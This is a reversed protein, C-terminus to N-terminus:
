AFDLFLLKNYSATTAGDPVDYLLAGPAVTMLRGEALAEANESDLTTVMEMPQSPMARGIEFLRNTIDTYGTEGTPVEIYGDSNSADANLLWYIVPDDGPAPATLGSDIQVLPGNLNTYEETPINLDLKLILYIYPPITDKIVPILSLFYSMSELSNFKFGLYAINLKMFNDMIFDLPTFIASDGPSSLNFYLKLKNKKAVSSNIFQNFKVVDEDHGIVPFVVNGLNDLYITELKNSFSLQGLYSGLFLYRSFALKDPILDTKKWWGEVNYSNDYFDIDNSILEGAYLTSGIQTNKLVANLPLKYAEKDTILFKNISDSFIDEIIEERNRVVPIGLISACLTQINNITPGSVFLKIIAKLVEKYVENNKIKLNFIYGFNKYLNSQDLECNYIWLIASQEQQINGSSDVFTIPEGSEGVVDYKEINPSDFVDRNIILTGNDIVVDTGYIFLEKPALIRDAIVGFKKYEPGVFYQFVQESSQKDIGFKFIMDRYYIDESSQKGFVAKNKEFVFPTKNLKSKLIQIPKWHEKHLIPIDEVSYSRITEVLDTYRQILEQAQSLTYGKLVEKDQFLQTWFSGLSRYLFESDTSPRNKYSIIM